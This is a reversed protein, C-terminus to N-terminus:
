CGLTLVNRLIGSSLLNSKELSGGDTKWSSGYPMEFEGEGAEGAQGIWQLERVTLSTFIIGTLVPPCFKIQNGGHYAYTRQIDKSSPVHMCICTMKCCVHACGTDCSIGM